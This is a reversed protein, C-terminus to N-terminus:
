RADEATDAGGRLTRVRHRGGGEEHEQAFHERQKAAEWIGLVARLPMRYQQAVTEPSLGQGIAALVATDRQQKWRPQKWSV